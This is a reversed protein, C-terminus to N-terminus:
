SRRAPLTFYFAAGEGAASEAWIRGGHSEVVRRCLPLGIGTGPIGQGHLRRFPAFVAHALAPDFGIGNDRVCFEWEAGRQAASIGIRPTRGPQRYKIANSLLNQFLQELRAGDGWVEPLAEFDIAAGSEEIASGLARVCDEVIRGSDVPQMPAVATGARSLALLGDILVRMRRTGDLIFAVYQDADAGLKGKAERALLQTFNTVTRLPEQLDHSAAYAFQEMEENARLLAEETRKRDTVDITAGILRWPNGQEDRRLEASTSVWRTEGGPRVIRFQLAYIELGNLAAEIAKGVRELDDAHVLTRYQALTGSFEGPRLGHIEYVRESWQIRDAPINWDWAGIGGARLAIAMWEEDGGNM